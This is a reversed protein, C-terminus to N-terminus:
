EANSQGEPTPTPRMQCPFSGDCDPCYNFPEPARPCRPPEMNALMRIADACERLTERRAASTSDLAANVEWADALENAQFKSIGSM